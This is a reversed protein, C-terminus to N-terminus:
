TEIKLVTVIVLFICLSFVQLTAHLILSLIIHTDLIFHFSKMSKSTSIFLKGIRQGVPTSFVNGALSSVNFFSSM